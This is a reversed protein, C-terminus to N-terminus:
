CDYFKVCHYVTYQMNALLVVVVVPFKVIEMVDALKVFTNETCAIPTNFVAVFM